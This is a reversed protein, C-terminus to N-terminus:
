DGTIKGGKMYFESVKGTDGTVSCLLGVDASYNGSITGDNMTFTGGVYVGAGGGFYGQGNRFIGAAVNKSIVGGYMEFAGGPEVSVGGGYGSSVANAHIAGGYLALSADANM